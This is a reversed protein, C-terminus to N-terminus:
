HHPTTVLVLLVAVFNEFFEEELAIGEKIQAIRLADLKLAGQKSRGESAHVLRRGRAQLVHTYGNLDSQFLAIATGVLHDFILSLNNAKVSPCGFSLSSM